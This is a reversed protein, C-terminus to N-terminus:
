SNEEKIAKIILRIEAKQADTLEKRLKRSFNSDTCGLREAIEWLKVNAAKAEERIDINKMPNGGKM